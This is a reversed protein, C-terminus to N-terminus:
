KMKEILEDIMTIDEYIECDLMIAKIGNLTKLDCEDFISKDKKSKLYEM